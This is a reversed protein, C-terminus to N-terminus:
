ETPTGGAEDPLGKVTLSRVELVADTQTGAGVAHATSLDCPRSSEFVLKDNAWIKQGAPTLLWRLKHWTNGELMVEPKSDLFSGLVQGRNDPAEQDPGHVRLGGEKDANFLVMGGAGAALRINGRASRAVLTIDIPGRYCRRSLLWKGKEVFILDGRPTADFVDLDHWRDALDPVKQALTLLEKRATAQDLGLLNPEALKWLRYARRWCAIQFSGTEKKAQEMWAEALAKRNATKAPEALDRKVLDRLTSDSGISLRRLGEEWVEQGCRFRGVVLNAAPDGPDKALADLATRVRGFDDRDRTLDGHLRAAQSALAPDRAKRAAVQAAEVFRLAADYSDEARAQYALKFAQDIARTATAPDHAAKALAEVTEVKVEFRGVKYRATIELAWRLAGATDRSEVALRRLEKFAVYREAPKPLAGLAFGRLANRLLDPNNKYFEKFRDRVDAEATQCDEEAPVPLRNDPKEPEPQPPKDRRATTPAPPGVLPLVDGKGTSPVTRPPKLATTPPPRRSAPPPTTIPPPVSTTAPLSVATTPSPIVIAVHTGPPTDRPPLLLILALVVGAAIAVGTVLWAWVPFTQVRRWRRPRIVPEVGRGAADVAGGPTFLWDTSAPDGAATRAPRNAQITPAKEEPALEELLPTEQLRARCAERLPVLLSQLLPDGVTGLEQFLPSDEPTQLDAEKFLLNDGNDYREWLSKGGLTLARLATAMVLFPFRDVEFDYTGERHRQPHQYNPHGVEGSKSQALAPVWMGDYDILKVALAAEKRGPVLLVNGHQLDAHAVKAERLRRAVRGWIQQLAQLLAPKDLNDRVFENFLLGEVWRMKLIPYWKGRIRIGKELFQFDVTFPLSAEQLHRSVASYRESLGPVQRTFCKVAWKTQSAPCSIEYVDAFNGSRPLPLGLANLHLEGSRLEADSFASVPDQIAENYDQSLPWGM